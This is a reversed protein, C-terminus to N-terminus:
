LSKIKVAILDLCGLYAFQLFTDQKMDYRIQLRRYNKCENENLIFVPTLWAFVNEVIHRKKLSNLENATNKAKQSKKYLYVLNINYKEKLKAKLPASNYGKDGILCSGIIKIKSQNVANEVLQVDHCNAKNM